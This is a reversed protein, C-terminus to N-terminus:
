FEFWVQIPRSVSQGRKNPRLGHREEHRRNNILPVLLPPHIGPTTVSLLSHSSLSLPLSAAPHAADSTLWLICSVQTTGTCSDVVDDDHVTSEGDGRWFLENRKDIKTQTTKRWGAAMWVMMGLLWSPATSILVIMMTFISHSPIRILLWVTTLM